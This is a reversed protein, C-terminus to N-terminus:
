SSSSRGPFRKFALNAIYMTTLSFFVFTGCKCGTDVLAKLMEDEFTEKSVKGLVGAGTQDGDVEDVIGWNWLWLMKARDSEWQSDDKRIAGTKSRGRLITRLVELQEDATAYFLLKSVNVLSLPHGLGAFQYASYVIMQLLMYTALRPTTLPHEPRLLAAPVIDASTQSEDLKAAHREIRPLSEVSTALDPPPIFDLLEALRALLNHAYRVTEQTNAQAAYCSAFIAQAYQLELKRQVDEDLYSIGKRDFGGLDVDGPGDWDEVARAVLGLHDVSSAVMWRFMHEWDHGTVDSERVGSLEIKALGRTSSDVRQAEGQVAEGHGVKRRKRETSGYMWPGVLSKIDRSVHEYGQETQAGRLLLEMGQSGEYGEFDGLPIALSADEPYYEVELRLLPLMASIYWTRLYENRALFPEVLAPVLNLLGTEEDIRRARHCVFRTLLDRPAHSPYNPPDLALLRLKKVRKQATRESMDRVPSTDVVVDERDVDLYLRSAVESIYSTYSHPDVAEPLYTLLIRLVLEPDFPSPRSPTFSHLASINSESALHVALLISQAPSLDAVTM